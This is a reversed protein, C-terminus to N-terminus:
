LSCLFDYLSSDAGIGLKKKLRTKATNVSRFTRSTMNAIEKSDLNLRILACLRRENPTLGPFGRELKEFFDNDVRKFYLEFENWNKDPTFEALLQEMDQVYAMEKTKLSFLTRMARLKEGLSEVLGEIRAYYLAQATLEKDKDTLTQQMDSKLNELRDQSQSETEDLRMQMIRNFRRQVILRRLVLVIAVLFVCGGLVLFAIALNRTKVKSRILELEQLSRAHEQEQRYNEFKRQLWGMRLEQDADALRRSAGYASDIYYLSQEYDGKAEHIEALASLAREEMEGDGASRASALNDLAYRRAQELRGDLLCIDALHSRTYLSLDGYGRALSLELASDLHAIALDYQGMGSWALGTYMLTYVYRDGLVGAEQLLERGKTAWILATDPEGDELCCVALDMYLQAKRDLSLSPPLIELARVLCSKAKWAMGQGMYVAGLTNYYGAMVWDNSDKAYRARLNSLINMAEPYENLRIETRALALGAEVHLAAWLSDTGTEPVFIGNRPTRQLLSPVSLFSAIARELPALSDFAALYAGAASAFDAKRIKFVYVNFTDGETRALGIGRDLWANRSANDEARAVREAYIKLSDAHVPSVAVQAGLPMAAWAAFLLLCFRLLQKFKNTQLMPLFNRPIKGRKEFSSLGAIQRSFHLFSGFNGGISLCFGSFAGQFNLRKLIALFKLCSRLLSSPM